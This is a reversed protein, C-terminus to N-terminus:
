GAPPQGLGDVLKGVVGTVQNLLDGVVDTTNQLVSGLGPAAPSVLHAVAEGTTDVTTDLTKGLDRVPEGPASPAATPKPKPATAGAVAVGQAPLATAAGSSTTSATPAASAQATARRRPKVATVARHTPQSSSRFAVPVRLPAPAAAANTHAEARVQAILAQQEGGDQVRVGPWGRFAILGSVLTLAITGALILCTAAGLSALLGRTARM